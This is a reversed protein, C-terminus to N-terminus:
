RAGGGTAAAPSRAPRKFFPLDDDEVIRDSEQIIVENVLWRARVKQLRYDVTYNVLREEGINKNGSMMYRYSWSERTTLKARDEPLISVELFDISRLLADMVVM